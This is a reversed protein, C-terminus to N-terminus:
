TRKDYGIIESDDGILVMTIDVELCIFMNM